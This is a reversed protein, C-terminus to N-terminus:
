ILKKDVLERFFKFATETAEQETIVRQEILQNQISVEFVYTNKPLIHTVSVLMGDKLMAFGVANFKPFFGMFYTTMEGNTGVDRKWIYDGNVNPECKMCIPKIRDFPASLALAMSALLVIGVVVTLIKRKM